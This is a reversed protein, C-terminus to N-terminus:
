PAVSVSSYLSSYYDDYATAVAYYGNSSVSNSERDTGNPISKTESWEIKSADQLTAADTDDASGDQRGDALVCLAGCMDFDPSNITTQRTANDAAQTELAEPQDTSQAFLSGTFCSLATVFIAGITLSRKHRTMLNFAFKLVLDKNM